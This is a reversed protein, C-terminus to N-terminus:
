SVPHRQLDFILGLIDCVDFLPGSDVREVEFGNKRSIACWDERLNVTIFFSAKTFDHFTWLGGCHNRLLGTIFLIIIM